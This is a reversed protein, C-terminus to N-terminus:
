KKREPPTQQADNAPSFLLGAVMHPADFALFGDVVFFREGGHSGAKLWLVQGTIIPVPVEGLEGAVNATM